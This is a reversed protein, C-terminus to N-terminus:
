SMSLLVSKRNWPQQKMLSINPVRYLASDDRAQSITTTTTTPTQSPNGHELDFLGQGVGFLNCYSRSGAVGFVMCLRANCGYSFMLGRSVDGSPHLQSWVPGFVMAMTYVITSRPSRCKRHSGHSVHDAFRM